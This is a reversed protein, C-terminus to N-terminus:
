QRMGRKRAEEELEQVLRKGGEYLEKLARLQTDNWDEPNELRKKIDDNTEQTQKILGELEINTHQKLVDKKRM